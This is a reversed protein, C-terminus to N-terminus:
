QNYARDLEAIDLKRMKWLAQMMRGVRVPDGHDFREGIMQPVIQWSLGFKDKVWGCMSEEGGDATLTEWYHDVEAQDKCNVYFSVAENFKFHPGADFMHMTLGNIEISGTMIKEPPFDTGEGWRRIMKIKSNPFVSTYFNMAEECRDDFWLFPVVAQTTVLENM